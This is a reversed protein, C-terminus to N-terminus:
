RHRRCHTVYKCSGIQGLADLASEIEDTDRSESSELIKDIASIVTKVGSNLLFSLM